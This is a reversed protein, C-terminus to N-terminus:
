TNNRFINIITATKATVNHLVWYFLEFLVAQVSDLLCIKQIKRTWSCVFLTKLWSFFFNKNNKPFFFEWSNHRESMSITFLFFIRREDPEQAYFQLQFLHKSAFFMTTSLTLSSMQNSFSKPKLILSMFFLNITFDCFRDYCLTM